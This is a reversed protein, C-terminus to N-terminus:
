DRSKQNHFYIEKALFNYIYDTCARLLSKKKEHLQKQTSYQKELKIFLHVISNRSLQIAIPTPPSCNPSVTKLKM